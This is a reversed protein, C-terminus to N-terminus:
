GDLINRAILANERMAQDFNAFRADQTEGDQFRKFLQQMVVAGKWYAFAEYWNIDRDRICM